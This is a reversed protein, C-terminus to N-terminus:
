TAGRGVHRRDQAALFGSGTRSGVLRPSRREGGRRPELLTLGDNLVVRPIDGTGTLVTQSWDDLGGRGPHIRTCRCARPAAPTIARVHFPGSTPTGHCRGDPRNRGGPGHPEGTSFDVSRCPSPRAGVDTLQARCLEMHVARVVGSSFRKQNSRPHLLFRDHRQPPGLSLPRLPWCHARSSLAGPPHGPPPMRVSLSLHQLIDWTVAPAGQFRAHGLGEAM